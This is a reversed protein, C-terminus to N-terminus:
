LHMIYTHPLFSLLRISFITWGSKIRAKEEDTLHETRTRIVVHVNNVNFVQCVGGSVFTKYYLCAGSNVAFTYKPLFFFFYLFMIVKIFRLKLDKSWKQKILKGVGYGQSAGTFFLEVNFLFFMKRGGGVTLIMYFFLNEIPSSINFFHSFVSFYIRAKWFCYEKHGLLHQCDTHDVKQRSGTWSAADVGVDRRGNRSIHQLTRHWCSQRRPEGRDARCVFRDSCLHCTVCVYVCGSPMIEANGNLFLCLGDGRFIYSRRGRIWTMNEFGLLTADVRLCAGSKWIRCVDNPCVRSLLPVTFCCCLLVYFSIKFFGTFIINTM